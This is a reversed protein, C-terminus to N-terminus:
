AVLSLQFSKLPQLSVVAPSVNLQALPGTYPLTRLTLYAGRGGLVLATPSAWSVSALGDEFPSFTQDVAFPAAPDGAAPVWLRVSGDAHGM